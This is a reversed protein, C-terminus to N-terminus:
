DIKENPLEMVPALLTLGTERYLQSFTGNKSANELEQECQEPTMLGIEKAMEEIARKLAERDM